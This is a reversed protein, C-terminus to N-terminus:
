LPVSPREHPLSMPPSVASWRYRFMSLCMRPNSLCLLCRGQTLQANVLAGNSPKSVRGVRHSGDWSALIYSLQYISCSDIYVMSPRPILDQGLCSMKRHFIALKSAQTSPPERMKRYFIVQIPHNHQTLQNM